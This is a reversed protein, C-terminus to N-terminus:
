TFFTALGKVPTFVFTITVDESSVVSESLPVRGAEFERSSVVLTLSVRDTEFEVSEFDKEISVVQSLNSPSSEKAEEYLLTSRL